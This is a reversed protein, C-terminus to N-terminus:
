RSKRELPNQEAQIATYIEERHIPINRPAEIAIKVRNGRIELLTIKIEADEGIIISENLLRSLVLM